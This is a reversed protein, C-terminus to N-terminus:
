EYKNEKNKAYNAILEAAKQPMSYIDASDAYDLCNKSYNALKEKDLIIELEKNLEAQNFPASIVKGAKAKEIHFAYGCTETCIVPLGAVVAELLTTGTNENIAPHIMLDAGSLFRPIDSRGGLFLINKDLGLSSVLKKLSDSKDSGVIFFKTKSKIKEPLSSISLISRKVGKTVFGSGVQLILFQDDKIDFEKRFECRGTEYNSDRKRDKSIGPPLLHFRENPTNYYKQFIKIQKEAIMLIETASDASFVDNEFSSYIKYRSTLQSLFSRQEQMKAKYCYDAAYYVDLNSLRNFGILLDVPNAKLDNQIWNSFNKVKKHNSLGKKPVFRIDFEEPVDGEWSITYVIIEFGKKKCEQAIRLFDRELGGFPFYKLLCFALKM